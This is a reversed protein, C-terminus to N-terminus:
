GHGNNSGKEVEKILITACSLITFVATAYESKENLLFREFSPFWSRNADRHAAAIAPFNSM